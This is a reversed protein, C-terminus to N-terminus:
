GTRYGMHCTTCEQDVKSRLTDYASFDKSEVAEFMKKANDRMAKAHNTFVPDDDAYGLSDLSFVHAIAAIVTVERKASDGNDKFSDESGTNSQMWDMSLKLRKMLYGMDAFDVFAAEDDADPLEPPTNGDLIDSIRLFNKNVQDYSKRGRAGAGGCIEAIEAGLVRIYKANEKWRLDGSHQRGIESLVALSMGFMPLELYSSNYSGLSSLRQKFQNRLTKFEANLMDASIITDWAVAGGAPKPTDATAPPPTSTGPDEPPVDTTNPVAPTVGKASAVELPNDFYVDKYVDLPVGFIKRSAPDSKDGADNKSSAASKKDTKGSSENKVAKPDPDDGGGCGLFTLTVSFILLSRVPTQIAKLILNKM